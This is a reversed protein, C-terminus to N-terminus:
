QKGKWQDDKDLTKKFLMRAAEHWVVVGEPPMFGPAAVSGSLRLRQIQIDVLASDFVGQYLVPVVSCCKPRVADDSWRATNFLSFVKRDMGYKRQIGNGWWEGFHSGPGLKMLEEKNEHAWRSFGYNDDTPTIWRTRSGTLFEGDEGIYVQANTGDLKETVVMARSLRPIKDFEKFETM